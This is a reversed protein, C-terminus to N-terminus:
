RVGREGPAPFNYTAFEGHFCWAALDRILGALAASEFYGLNNERGAVRIQAVWPRRVRGHCYTAGMFGSTNGRSMRHNYHNESGHTPRLNERRCNLGDGDIHDVRHPMPGEPHARAWVASHLLEIISKGDIRIRREAYWGRHHPARWACWKFSTLEIDIDDIIATQGRTLPIQIM